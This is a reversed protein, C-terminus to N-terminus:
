RLRTRTADNANQMPDSNERPSLSLSGPLRLPAPWTPHYHHCKYFRQLCPTAQGVLYRPFLVAVKYFNAIRRPTSYSIIRWCRSPCHLLAGSRLVLHVRLVIGACSRRVVSVGERHTGGTLVTNQPVIPACCRLWESFPACSGLSDVVVDCLPSTQSALVKWAENFVTAVTRGRYGCPVTTANPRDGVVARPPKALAMSLQSSASSSRSARKQM